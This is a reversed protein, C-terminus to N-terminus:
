HVGGEAAGHQAALAPDDLIELDRVALEALVREGATSTAAAAQLLMSPGAAYGRTNIEYVYYGSAKWSESAKLMRVTENALLQVQAVDQESLGALVERLAVERAAPDSVSAQSELEAFIHEVIRQGARAAHTPGGVGAAGGQRACVLISQIEDAYANLVDTVEPRIKWSEGYALNGRTAMADVSAIFADVKARSAPTRAIHAHRAQLHSLFSKADVFEMLRRIFRPNLRGNEEVRRLTVSAGSPVLTTAAGLIPVSPLSVSEPHGSHSSFHGISSATSVVSASVTVSASRARSREVGRLWGNTDIRENKGALLRDYSVGLTPGFHLTGGSIRFTKSANASLTHSSRHQERWNVSIAPTRFFRHAFQEWMQEPRVARAAQAVTANQFLFDVVDAANKRWADTPKGAEDYSLGTRVIVGIPASRDYSYAVGGGIGAAMHAGRKGFAIGGFVGFAAGTSSRKDTGVFVEGGYSSSGIEVFAHRGHLAKAGPGLSVAPVLTNHNFEHQNLSMNANVGYTGGDFYRVNNGLPMAHIADTLATRFADLTAAQPRIPRGREIATAEALRDQAPQLSQLLQSSQPGATRTSAALSEAEMVWRALTKLDLKDLKRFERYSLVTNADLDAEAAAIRVAAAIAHKDATRLKLTSSRWAPGTHVKWHKLLQERLLWLGRQDVSLTAGAPGQHLAGSHELLGDICAHVHEHLAKAENALLGLNAGGAGYTTATLPSKQMGLLRRPDFALVRHKARQEARRAWTSFKNLRTLTRALATGPGGERYGSRWAVYAAVQTRDGIAEASAHPSANVKVACLLANLALSDLAGARDAAGAQRVVAHELQAAPTRPVEQAPLGAALQSAAQLFTRLSERKLTATAGDDPLGNVQVLEPRLAVLADLGSATHALLKAASWAHQQALTPPRGDAGDELSFRTQLHQLAVCAQVADSGTAAALARACQLMGSYRTAESLGPQAHAVAGLQALLRHLHGGTDEVHGHPAFLAEVASAFARESALARKAEPEALPGAPLPPYLKETLNHAQQELGALKRASAPAPATARRARPPRKPIPMPDITTGTFGPPATIALAAPRLRRKLGNLAHSIRRGSGPREVLQLTEANVPSSASEASAATSATGAGPRSSLFFKMALEIFPSAQVAAVGRMALDAGASLHM